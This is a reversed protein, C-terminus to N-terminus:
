NLAALTHGIRKWDAEQQKWARNAIGLPGCHGVAFVRQGRSPIWSNGAAKSILRPTDILNFASRVANWGHKGMAVIIPPRLHALLPVLHRKACSKVWPDRIPANMPGKKLCLISNTLFVPSDIDRTPPAGVNLGAIGLLKHLNNNTSNNLEDQGLHERFYDIDGFDQGVILLKPSEHGLWQSWYSVVLPDFDERAGNFIHDPNRDSCIRCERRATVLHRLADSM